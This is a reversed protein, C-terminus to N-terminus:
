CFIKEAIQLGNLAAGKRINDAVVWFIWSRPRSKDKHLRGLYVDNKGDSQLVTPFQHNKPNDILSLGEFNQLSDKIESESVETKLTVFVSEGHGNLTPVRVTFTSILLDSAELIKKTENMIKEEESCYGDDNFSGIEPISNNLIQHNFCKPEDIEKNQLQLSQQHLLEQQAEKGAGSVSQYTSVYVSELGFRDLLPKLAVVLQITSCNPNAIICPQTKDPILHANIEPVVLPTHADMRFAASNDVAFAGSQVAQPAWEKSISDGSSFFVLDLGDFCNPKLTQITWDKNKCKLKLGESKESAFPRLEELPFNREELLQIFTEGVMGTAGVLGVKLSM